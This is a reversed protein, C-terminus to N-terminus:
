LLCNNTLESRAGFEVLRKLYANSLLKLAVNQQMAFFDKQSTGM